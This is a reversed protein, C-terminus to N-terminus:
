GWLLGANNNVRGKQENILDDITRPKFQPPAPPQMQGFGDAGAIQPDFMQGDESAGWTNRRKRAAEEAQEQAKQQAHGQMMQGATNVGATILSAKGAEGLGNWMGSLLGGSASSTASPLTAASGANGMGALKTGSLPDVPSSLPAASGGASAAGGFGAGSKLASGAASFEGAAIAKGATMLQAGANALGAKAGALGGGASAGAGMGMAGTLAGATFYTGVAIAAIKFAKSKIIKHRIKKTKNHLGLTAVNLVKSKLREIPRFVKRKLKKLM